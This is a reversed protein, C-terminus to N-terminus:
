TKVEEQEDKVESRLAKEWKENEVEAEGVAERSANLRELFSGRNWRHDCKRRTRYPYPTYVGSGDCLICDEKTMQIM